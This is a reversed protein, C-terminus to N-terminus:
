RFLERYRGMAVLQSVAPPSCLEAASTAPVARYVRTGDGVTIGPRPVGLVSGIGLWAIGKVEWRVAKPPVLAYYCGAFRDCIVPGEHMAAALCTGVREPEASRAAAQVVSAPIRVASFTEGCSLMAM